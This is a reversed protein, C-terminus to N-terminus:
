LDEGTYGQIELLSFALPHHSYDGWLATSPRLIGESEFLRKENLHLFAQIASTGTKDMGVHLYLTKGTPDVKSRFLRKPLARYYQLDTYYLRKLRQILNM